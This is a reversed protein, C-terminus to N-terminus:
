PRSEVKYLYIRRHLAVPEYFYQCPLNLKHSFHTAETEIPKLKGHKPILSIAGNGHLLTREVFIDAFFSAKRGEDVAQQVQDSHREYELQRHLAPPKLENLAGVNNVGALYVDFLGLASKVMGGALDNADASVALCGHALDPYNILVPDFLLDRIVEREHAPASAGLLVLFSALSTPYSFLYGVAKRAVFGYEWPELTLPASGPIFCYPEERGFFLGQQVDSCLRHNGTRLWSIVWASLTVPDGQMLERVVDQFHSLRYESTEDRKSLLRGLFTRVRGSEGSRMLHGLLTDLFNCDGIQLRANQLVTLLSDFLPQPLHRSNHGLTKAIETTVAPTLFQTIQAIFAQIVPHATAPAVEFWCLVAELVSARLEEAQDHDLTLRLFDLTAPWTAEEQFHAYRLGQATQIRYSPNAHELYSYIRQVHHGDDFQCAESIAAKLIQFKQCIQEDAEVLEFMQAIRDRRRHCWTTLIKSIGHRNELPTLLHEIIEMLTSLSIDLKGLVGEYVRQGQFGMMGSFRSLIDPSLGSVLDIQGRNHMEALLDTFARFEPTWCDRRQTFLDEILSGNGSREMIEAHSLMAM